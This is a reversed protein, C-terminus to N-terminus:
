VLFQHCFRFRKIRIDRDRFDLKGSYSLMCRLLQRLPLAPASIKKSFHIRFEADKTDQNKEEAAQTM